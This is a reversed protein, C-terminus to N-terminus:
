EDEPREAGEDPSQHDLEEPLVRRLVLQAQQNSVTSVPSPEARVAHGEALGARALAPGIGVLRAFLALVRATTAPRREPVQMGCTALLEAWAQENRNETESLEILRNRARANSAVAALAEYVGAMRAEGAWNARLSKADSASLSSAM